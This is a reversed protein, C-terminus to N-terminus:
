QYIVCVVISFFDESKQSKITWLQKYRNCMKPRRKIFTNVFIILLTRLYVVFVVVSQWNIPLKQASIGLSTVCPFTDTTKSVKRWIACHYLVRDYLFQSDLLRVFLNTESCACTADLSHNLRLSHRIITTHTHTHANPSLLTLSTPNVGFFEALSSCVNSKITFEWRFFQFNQACKYIYVCM